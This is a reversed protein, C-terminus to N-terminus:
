LARPIPDRGGHAMQTPTPCPARASSCRGQPTRTHSHSACRDAANWVRRAPRSRTTDSILTQRAAPHRVARRDLASSRWRARRVPGGASRRRGPDYAHGARRESASAANAAPSAGAPTM